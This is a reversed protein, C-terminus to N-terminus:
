KSKPNKMAKKCQSKAQRNRNGLREQDKKVKNELHKATVRIKDYMRIRKKQKSSMESRYKQMRLHNLEKKIALEDSCKSKIEISQADTTLSRCNM